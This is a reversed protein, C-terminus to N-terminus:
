GAQAPASSKAPPRGRTLAIVRAAELQGARDLRVTPKDIWDAPPLAFAVYEWVIGLAPTILGARILQERTLPPTTM